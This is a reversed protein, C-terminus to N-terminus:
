LGKNKLFAKVPAEILRKIVKLLTHTAKLIGIVPKFLAMMVLDKM